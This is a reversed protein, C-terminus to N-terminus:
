SAMRRAREAALFADIEAMVGNMEAIIVKTEAVALPDELDLDDIPKPLLRGLQNYRELLARFEPPMGKPRNSADM